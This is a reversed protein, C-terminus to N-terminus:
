DQDQERQEKEPKAKLIEPITPNTEWVELATEDIAAKRRGKDEGVKSSLKLNSIKARQDTEM